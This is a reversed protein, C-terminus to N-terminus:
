ESDGDEGGGAPIVGTVAGVPITAVVGATDMVAATAMDAAIVAATDAVAAILVTALDAAAGMFDAVVM